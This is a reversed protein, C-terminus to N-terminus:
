RLLTVISLGIWSAGLLTLLGVEAPTVRQKGRPGHVWSIVGTAAISHIVLILTLAYGEDFMLGQEDLQHVGALVASGMVAAALVFQPVRRKLLDLAETGGPADPGAVEPQTLRRVVDSATPRHRAEKDLCRRALAPLVPDVVGLVQVLDRPEGELRASMPQEPPGSGFPGEGTLLYYALVGLQYVDAQGTLEEGRIQEPSMSRIDDGILGTDDVQTPERGSDLVKALGFGAILVRGSEDEIMVNSPRLDRHVVGQRHAAALAEAVAVLVRRAEPVTLPGEAAVREEITRGQVYQMVLFPRADNTQGTRHLQVIGPHTLAALARAAREFRVRATPDTADTPGLVKVAVMRQLDGERALFVDAAQGHGLPRVIELNPLVPEPFRTYM